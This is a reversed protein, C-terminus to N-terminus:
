PRRLPRSTAPESKTPCHSERSALAHRHLVRLHTGCGPRAASGCAGGVPDRYACTIDAPAGSHTVVRNGVTLLPHFFSALWVSGDAAPALAPGGMREPLPVPTLKTERFREIGGATGVWVNGERDELVALGVPGTTLPVREVPLLSPTTALPVRFLGTDDIVWANARHDVFIGWSKRLHEAAARAPTARGASDSLRTLGLTPSTGWVSGDPAERPVGAGSGTPDLSPAQRVFRSAGRPLIFVGTRTPAWLTGRRDVLLDSTMGGPYGSEPGIRQWRGGQLRALGTTTAAWISGASDRALATITGEPLGDRQSYSEVRGRRLVSVGGVHYGIWLAGDSLALMVNISLSPLPKSAPPEFREFRVGDFQYLGTTSGIWLVGDASQALATVVSPAGERITWVTHDLVGLAPGPPQGRLAPAAAALFACMLAARVRMSLM